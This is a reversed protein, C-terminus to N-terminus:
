LVRNYFKSWFFQRLTKVVGRFYHKTLISCYGFFTSMFIYFSCVLHYAGLIVFSITETTHDLFYVFLLISRNCFSSIWWARSDCKEIGPSNGMQDTGTLSLPSKFLLSTRHITLNLAIIQFSFIKSVQSTRM